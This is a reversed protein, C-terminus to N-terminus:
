EEESGIFVKIKEIKDIIRNTLDQCIEMEEQNEAKFDLKFGDVHPENLTLTFKM